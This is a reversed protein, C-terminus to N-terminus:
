LDFTALVYELRKKSADFDGLKMLIEGVYGQAIKVADAGPPAQDLITEFETRALELSWASDMPVRNPDGPFRLRVEGDSLWKPYEIRIDSWDPNEKLLGQYLEAARQPRYTGPPFRHRYIVALLLRAHKHKPDIRLAHELLDAAVDLRGDSKLAREMVIR